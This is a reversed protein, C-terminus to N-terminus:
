IVMFKDKIERYDDDNYLPKTLETWDDQKSHTKKFHHRYNLIGRHQLKKHRNLYENM